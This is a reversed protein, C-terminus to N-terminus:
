EGMIKILENSNTVNAGYVRQMYKLSARHVSDDPSAVCDEPVAIEYGRFFAGAASNQICIETV